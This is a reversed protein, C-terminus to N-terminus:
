APLTAARTGDLAVTGGVTAWGDGEYTTLLRSGRGQTIVLDRRLRVTLRIAAAGTAEDEAVGIAPACMRSRITGTEEDLWTWYYHKGETVSAPDIAEVEAVSALDHWTFVPSWDAYARVRTVDGDRTVAVDGAPPRLVDVDHGQGRLWWATGVTPHGAFPLESAPTFIRIRGSAADDVFVTESFGLERAVAQRHEEPVLAGDIVGLQNGHEGNEDTFVRLVDVHVM